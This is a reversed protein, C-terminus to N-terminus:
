QTLNPGLKKEGQGPEIPRVKPVTELPYNSTLIAIDNTGMRSRYPKGGMGFLFSNPFGVDFPEADEIEDVEEQTLEVGLAEINGKLHEVKRGGVIPFVYPTKHMVYALAISTILTGKKKAIEELKTAIRIYKESQPGMKRGDRNPDDYEKQSKFQGRGLSGWPAIGMGEAECMPIIEREFDRFAASWHGQYVSFQTLGHQRAYDNCKVVIWAPTDSIGLYLVKGAQVLSHLSNMLEPVSTTFDWWHLWLLDIYTTQLKRLSHEVSIKISKSHNGQFNSKLHEHAGQTRFGTTFKTAIVMEDRNGKEKMWEGIWTESEEAQYNNATDIFNGGQEYFYDMMAFATEKNCEGLYEKWAEGFNMAGLCLPSVRVGATPSLIRHYGLLSAPKKAPPFLSM